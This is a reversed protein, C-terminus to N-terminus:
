AQATLSSGGNRIMSLLQDVEDLLVVKESGPVENEPSSAQRSLPRMSLLTNKGVPFSPSRGFPSPSIVRAAAHTSSTPASCKSTHRQPPLSLPRIEDTATAAASIESLIPSAPYELPSSSHKNLPMTSSSSENAHGERYHFDGDMEASLRSFQDLEEAVSPNSPRLLDGVCRVLLRVGRSMYTQRGAADALSNECRSIAIAIDDLNIRVDGIDDRLGLVQTHTSDQKEALEQQKLGLATIQESLADRVRIIGQGLSTIAKNFFNRTVPLLEKDSDPLFQSFVLYSGWCAGAGLSLQILVGWGFRGSSSRELSSPTVNHIVIPPQPQLNHRSSLTAESLFASGNRGTLLRLAIQAIEHAAKSIGNDGTFIIVTGFGIFMWQGFASSLPGKTALNAAVTVM